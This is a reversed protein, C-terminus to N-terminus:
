TLRKSMIVVLYTPRLTCEDGNSFQRKRVTAPSLIIGRNQALTSGNKLKNSNNNNSTLSWREDLPLFMAFFLMYYIYRDLIFYLWTNRLISSVYLYWSLIATLRTHYGVTFLVAVFTQIALLIQQQWLEGFHCHLCVSKYLDDIKPLLLRLPMTRLHFSLFFRTHSQQIPPDPSVSSM